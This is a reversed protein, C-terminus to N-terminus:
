GADAMEVLLQGCKRGIFEDFVNEDFAQADFVQDNAVVKMETGVAAAIEGQQLRGSFAVAKLDFRHFADQKIAFAGGTRSNARRQGGAFHFTGSAQEAAGIRNVTADDVAVFECPLQAKGGGVDADLVFPWRESAHVGDFDFANVIEGEGTDGVEAEAWAGILDDQGQQFDM